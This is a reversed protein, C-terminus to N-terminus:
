KDLLLKLLIGVKTRFADRENVLGHETVYWHGTDAWWLGDSTKGDCVTTKVTGQTPKNKFMYWIKDNIEFKM